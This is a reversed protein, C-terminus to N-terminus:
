TGPPRQLGGDPGPPPDNEGWENQAPLCIEPAGAPRLQNLTGCVAERIVYVGLLVFAGIVVWVLMKRASEIKETSGQATVFQFGAYVLFLVILIAGYQVVVGVIALLFDDLTGFRIPNQLGQAFVALPLLASASAFFGVSARLLYHQFRSTNM